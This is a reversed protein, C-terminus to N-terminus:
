VDVKKGGKKIPFQKQVLTVAEERDKVRGELQADEVATLIESFQPGPVYGMKILDHGTILREPRM